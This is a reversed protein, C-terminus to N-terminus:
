RYLPGHRSPILCLRCPFHLCFNAVHTLLGLFSSDGCLASLPFAITGGGGGEFVPLHPMWEGRGRDVCPHTLAGEDEPPSPTLQTELCSETDCTSLCCPMVRNEEKVWQETPLLNTWQRKLCGAQQLFPFGSQCQGALEM